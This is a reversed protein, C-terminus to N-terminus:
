QFPYRGLDKGIRLKLMRIPGFQHWMYKLEQGWLMRVYKQKDWLDHNAM